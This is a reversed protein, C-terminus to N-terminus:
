GRITYNVIKLLFTKWTNKAVILEDTSVKRAKSNPYIGQGAQYELLTTLSQFLQKGEISGNIANLPYNFSVECICDFAFYAYISKM